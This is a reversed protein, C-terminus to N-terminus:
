ECDMLNYRAKGGSIEVAVNNGNLIVDPTNPVALEFTIICDGEIEVLDGEVSIVPLPGQVQVLNIDGFKLYSGGVVHYGSVTGDQDTHILAMQADTEIMGAILQNGAVQQEIFYDSGRTTSVLLATAGSSQDDEMDLRAVHLDPLDSQFPYLVTSWVIPPKGKHTYRVVPAESKRRYGYSLFGTELNSEAKANLSYLALHPANFQSQGDQFEVKGLAEEALHWYQDFIHRGKGKLRDVVIWYDPKVFLVSRQHTVEPHSSQMGIAYDFGALSHWIGTPPTYRKPQDTEDIVITNHAATSKFYDRETGATYTFRGADKLLDHGYATAVINLMDYHAHWPQNTGIDFLLYLEDQYPLQGQGWGSRMIFYGGEPFAASTRAPPIGEMGNTAVYTMAPKNWYAGMQRLLYREDRKDTDGVQPVIGTPKYFYMLAEAPTDFLEQLPQLTLQPRLPSTVGNMEAMRIFNFWVELEHAHYSPSVELHMGDAHYSAALQTRMRYWVEHLLVDNRKFEPFMLTFLALGSCEFTGWNSYRRWHEPLYLFEAQQRMSELMLAHFGPTVVSSRAQAIFYDYSKVWSELRRGTDITRPYGPECQEIWDSIQNMWALPYKNDGTHLHAETFSSLWRFRNLSNHWESDTAQLTWDIRPGFDHRYSRFDFINAAYQDAQASDGPFSGWELRRNTRTQFYALLEREATATDSGALAAKVGEL